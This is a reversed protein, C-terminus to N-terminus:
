CLGIIFNQDIAKMCWRASANSGIQIMNQDPAIRVFGKSNSATINQDVSVNNAINLDRGVNLDNGFNADFVNIKLFNLLISNNGFLTGWVKLNRFVNLDRGVNLDLTNMDNVKGINKGNMNLDILFANTDKSMIGLSYVNGDSTGGINWGQTEGLNIIMNNFDPIQLLSNLDKQTYYSKNGDIWSVYLKNFDPNTEYNTDNFSPPNAIVIWDLRSANNSDITKIYRSDYNVNDDFVLLSILRNTSNQFNLYYTGEQGDFLGNWDSTPTVELAIFNSDNNVIIPSIGTYTPGGGGGSLDTRCLISGDIMIAYVYQNSGCYVDKPFYAIIRTDDQRVFRNIDYERTDNPNMFRNLDILRPDDIRLYREGFCLSSFLILAILLLIQNKM